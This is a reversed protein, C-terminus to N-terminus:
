GKWQEDPRHLVDRVVRLPRQVHALADLEVVARREVAGGLKLMSEHLNEGSM